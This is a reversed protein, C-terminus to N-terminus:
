FYLVKRHSFSNFRKIIKRLVYECRWNGQRLTSANRYIDNTAVSGLRETLIQRLAVFHSLLQLSDITPNLM